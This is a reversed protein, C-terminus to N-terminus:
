TPEPEVLRYGLGRHTVITTAGLKRRLRHIQVEVTNSEVTRDWNYLGEEIRARSVIANPRRALAWLVAYEQATLDVAQGQLTVIRAQPDISLAGLVHTGGDRGSLRREVARLRASLEDLDVPKVMYDDAGADLGAVRDAIRGRATVLLVVNKAGRARAKRILDIGNGDPLGVDVIVADYPMHEPAPVIWAAEALAATQVWDVAHGDQALGTRLARGVMADDEILLM